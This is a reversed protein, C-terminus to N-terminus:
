QNFHCLLLTIALIYQQKSLYTYIFNFEFIFILYTTLFFITYPFLQVSWTFLAVTNQVWKPANVDRCLAKQFQETKENNHAHFLQLVASNFPIQYQSNVLIQQHMINENFDTLLLLCRVHLCVCTEAFSKLKVQEDTALNTLPFHKSCFSYLFTSCIKYWTV